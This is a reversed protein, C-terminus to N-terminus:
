VERKLGRNKLFNNVCSYPKNVAISLDKITMHKYHSLVFKRDEDTLGNPNVYRKYDTIKKRKLFQYITHSGIKLERAIEGMTKDHCNNLIYDEEYASLRYRPIKADDFIIDYGQSRMRYGPFIKKLKVEEDHTLELQSILWNYGDYM